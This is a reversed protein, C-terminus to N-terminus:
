APLLRFHVFQVGVVCKGAALVLVQLLLCLVLLFFVLVTNFLEVGFIDALELLSVLQQLSLPALVALPGFLVLQKLTAAVPLGLEVLCFYGLEVLFQVILALGEEGVVLGLGVLVPELLVFFFEDFELLFQGVFPM